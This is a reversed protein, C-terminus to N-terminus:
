SQQRWNTTLADSHEVSNWWSIGFEKARNWKRPTDCDTWVHREALPGRKNIKKLHPPMKAYMFQENIAQAAVGFADKALKQLEDLFEILEHNAPIPVLHQFKHKATATSQFKLYKRRFVSLNEALNERNGSSINKLTQPADGRMLSHFYNIKDEETLQYQIKFSTQFLHEFLGFKESKGDFTPMATTLSIPMQSIKNGNNNFSASNSNTALQQLALLIQKLQRLPTRVAFSHSVPPARRRKNKQPLELPANPFKKKIQQWWTAAIAFTKQLEQWWTMALKQAVTKHLRAASSAQKLILIVGPTTRM